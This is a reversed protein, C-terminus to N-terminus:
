NETKHKDNIGKKKQENYKKNSKCNRDEFKEITNKM